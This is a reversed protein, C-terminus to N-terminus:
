PFAFFLDYFTELHLVCCLLSRCGLLRGAQTQLPEAASVHAGPWMPSCCAGDRQSSCQPEVPPGATAATQVAPASNPRPLDHAPSHASLAPAARGTRLWAQSGPSRSLVLQAGAWCAM